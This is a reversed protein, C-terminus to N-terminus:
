IAILSIPNFRSAIIAISVKLLTILSNEVMSFMCFVKPSPTNVMTFPNNRRCSNYLFVGTTSLSFKLFRSIENASSM